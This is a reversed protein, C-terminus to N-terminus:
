FDCGGLLKPALTVQVFSDKSHFAMRSTSRSLLSSASNSFQKRRGFTRFRKRVLLKIDLIEIIPRAAEDPKSNWAAVLGIGVYDATADLIAVGRKDPGLVIHAFANLNKLGLVGSKGCERLPDFSREIGATNKIV